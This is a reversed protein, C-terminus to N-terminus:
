EAAYYPKQQNSVSIYRPARGRSLLDAVITEYVVLKQHMDLGTGFYARWGRGDQYSLGEAPEYYFREINPRLQKLLLAGELIDLSIFGIVVPPETELAFPDQADELPPPVRLPPNSMQSQIHLLGPIDARAPMLSGKANIWYTQGAEEWIAVPTDEIVTISVKNPWRLTVTASIIGPIDDIAAAAAVPDAAFIHIGGLGSVDAVEQAPIASVGSIPMTTVYFQEDLGITIIAYLTIALLVLSIWRPSVAVQALQERGFPLQWNFRQRRKRRNVTSPMSLSPAPFPAATHMRRLKPQKRLRQAAPETPRTYRRQPPHDQKM